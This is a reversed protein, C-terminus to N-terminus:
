DKTKEPELLRSPRAAPSADWAWRGRSPRPWESSNRRQTARPRSHPTPPLRAAEEFGKLDHTGSDAFRDDKGAVLDRVTDTVLIQGGDDPGAYQIPSADMTAPPYRILRAEGGETVISRRVVM